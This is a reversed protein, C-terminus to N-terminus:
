GVGVPIGSPQIIVKRGWLLIGLISITFLWQFLILSTNLSFADALYGFLPGLFIGLFNGGMKAISLFSARKESSVRRNLSDQMFPSILGKVLYIGAMAVVVVFGSRANGMVILFAIGLLGM